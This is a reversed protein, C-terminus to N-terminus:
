GVLFALYNTLYIYDLYLRYAKCFQTVLKDYKEKIVSVDKRWRCKFTISEEDCRIQAIFQMKRRYLHLKIKGM